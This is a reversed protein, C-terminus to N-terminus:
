DVEIARELLVINNDIMGRFESIRSIIKKSIADYEEDILKIQTLIDDLLYEFKDMQFVFSELAMLKMMGDIKQQWSIAIIPRSLSLSVIMSHMRACILFDCKKCSVVLDDSNQIVYTYVKSNSTFHDYVDNVQDYDLIDSSFLMISYSRYQQLLANILNVYADHIVKYQDPVCGFFICIGITKGIRQACILNSISYVPDPCLHIKPSTVITNMLEFSLPDRVSFYDCLDFAKKVYMRQCANMLPGVGVSFVAVKKNNKKVWSIIRWIKHSYVPLTRTDMIMNGGALVVADCQLLRKKLLRLKKPLGYKNHYIYSLLRKGPFWKTKRNSESYYVQEIESPYSIACLTSIDYCDVSEFENKFLKNVQKAILRDGINNSYYFSFLMLKM